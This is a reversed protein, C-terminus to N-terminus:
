ASTILLYFILALTIPPAIAILQLVALFSVVGPRRKNIAEAQMQMTLYLTVLSAPFTAAFLFVVVAATILEPVDTM